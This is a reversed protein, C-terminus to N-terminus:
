FSAKLGVYYSRGATGYGKVEEYDEDTLNEARGFITIFRTIDYSAALDVKTYSDLKDTNGLDDWRKGVKNLTLNINSKEPTWGISLSGKNEPRRALENGTAKDESKTVTYTSNISLNGPLNANLALEWGKIAVDDVNQPKWISLPDLPDVPAWAILNEYDSSYYLVSVTGKKGMFRQELGFEYAKNKEPKLDTNGSFPYYLDNITPAKFGTGFSGKFRTDTTKLHYSGALRYTTEDGFASQDDNRVGLTINLSDHFRLIQNQLYFANNSLSEDMQASDNKGEQKEHEFGLTLTNKENLLYLNHQWDITKVSTEIKSNRSTNTPDISKIEEDAVSLKISHNWFDRIDQNVKFSAVLSSNEQVYDPDDVPLGWGGDLDRKADVFRLTFDTYLTNNIRYGFRGSLTTNEYGDKETNGNDESAASIGETEIKSLALSYNLKKSGGSILANSRYTEHSGSEVSVNYATDGRGRKTIINVVGAMADSGYLTSQPGRIIEIKEINDVTLDAFNYGGSTPSNVQVGDIMVMTHGSNGGRIFLSTTKGPGGNQVVDLGQVGRLVELVTVANKKEIDEVTIVTVSSAVSEVPEETRTATIVMKELYVTEQAVAVSPFTMCMFLFIFLIKKMTRIVGQFLIIHNTNM